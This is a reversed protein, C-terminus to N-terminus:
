QVHRQDFYRSRRLVRPGALAAGDDARIERVPGIEDPREFPLLVPADEAEVPQRRRRLARQQQERVQQFQFDLWIKRFRPDRGNHFLAAQVADRVEGGRGALRLGRMLKRLLVPAEPSLEVARRLHALGEETHGLRVAQLGADALCEPQEADLQLSRRYSELARESPGRDRGELAQGLLHHYRPHDPQYGLAALLHRCARKYKRRRLYLEALHVQVQEAVEAPLERFHTLRHFADLADQTRGLQQYNCGMALLRDVLNLMMSMITGGHLNNAQSDKRWAATM